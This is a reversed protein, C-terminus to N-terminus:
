NDAFPANQNQTGGSVEVTPDIADSNFVREDPAPFDPAIPTVKEVQVPNNKPEGIVANAVFYAVVGTIIVILLLGGIDNKKM